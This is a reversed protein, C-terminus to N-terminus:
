NLKIIDNKKGREEIEKRQQKQEEKRKVELEKM